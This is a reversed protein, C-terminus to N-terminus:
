HCRVRQHQVRRRSGPRLYHLHHYQRSDKDRTACRVSLCTLAKKKFSATFAKLVNQIFQFKYEKKIQFALVARHKGGASSPTYTVLFDTLVVSGEWELDITRDTVGREKLNMVPAVTSVFFGGM